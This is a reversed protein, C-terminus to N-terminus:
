SEAPNTSECSLWARGVPPTREANEGTGSTLAVVTAAGGGRYADGKAAATRLDDLAIIHYRKLMSPTRHGSFATVTHPDVGAHILHRVGSRRLDHVIRGSLLSRLQRPRGRRESVGSRGTRGGGRAGSVCIRAGPGPWQAGRGSPLARIPAFM